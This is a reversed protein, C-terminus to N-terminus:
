LVSIYVLPTPLAHTPPPLPLAALLNEKIIERGKDYPGHPKEESGKRGATKTDGETLATSFVPHKAHLLHLFQTRTNEV